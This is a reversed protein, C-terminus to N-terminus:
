TSSTACASRVRQSPWPRYKVYSSGTVSEAAIRRNRPQQPVPHHSICQYKSAASFRPERGLVHETRFALTSTGAASNSIRYTFQIQETATTCESGEDM